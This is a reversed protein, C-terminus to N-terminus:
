QGKGREWVPPRRKTEMWVRDAREYLEDLGDPDIGYFGRIDGKEDVLALKTSHAIDYLEPEEEVPTAEGMGLKFGGQVLKSMDEYDGTVFAWDLESAGMKDAYDSLVQPTDNKPDVSFSILEVDIQNRDFREGLDLMARTVAPCTSPCRTFVFGAIWVKGQMRDATFAQGHHDVLEGYEPPLSFMVPPPEPVRRLYPYTATIAAAGLFFSIFWINRRLWELWAPPEYDPPPQRM